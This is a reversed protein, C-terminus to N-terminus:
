LYQVRQRAKEKPTLEKEKPKEETVVEPKEEEKKIPEPDAQYRQQFEEVTQGREM